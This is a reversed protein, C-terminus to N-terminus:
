RDSSATIFALLFVALTGKHAELLMKQCHGIDGM